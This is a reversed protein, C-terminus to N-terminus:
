RAARRRRAPPGHRAPRLGPEPDRRRDALRDPAADLDDLLRLGAAVASFFVFVSLLAVGIVAAILVLPTRNRELFSPQYATRQRERRGARSGAPPTSTGTARATGTTRTATSPKGTPPKADAAQRDGSRIGCDSRCRPARRTPCRERRRDAGSPTATGGSPARRSRRRASSPRATSSQTGPRQRRRSAKSM